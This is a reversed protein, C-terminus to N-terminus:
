KTPKDGNKKQREAFAAEIAIKEDVERDLVDIHDVAALWRKKGALYVMYLRRAEDGLVAAKKRANCLKAQAAQVETTM